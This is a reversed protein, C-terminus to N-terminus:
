NEGNIYAQAEFRSLEISKRGREFYYRFTATEAVIRLWAKTARIDSRPLRVSCENDAERKAQAEIEDVTLYKM